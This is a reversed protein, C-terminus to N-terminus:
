LRTVVSGSQPDPRGSNRLLEEKAGGGEDAGTRGNTGDAFEFIWQVAEKAFCSEWRWGVLCIAKAPTKPLSLFDTLRLQTHLNPFKLVKGLTQSGSGRLKCNM